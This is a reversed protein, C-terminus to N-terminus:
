RQHEYAKRESRTMPRASIIRIRDGREAFAIALHRGAVTTGFILFRSEGISHDPDAVTSSLLDAFVEAAEELTQM